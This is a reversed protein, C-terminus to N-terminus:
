DSFYFCRCYELLADRDSSGLDEYPVWPSFWDQFELRPSCPEGRDLEGVIRVAPGGTCLLIRFEEPHFDSAHIEWGSRLEISLPDEHIATMAVERAADDSTDLAAAAQKAARNDTDTKM